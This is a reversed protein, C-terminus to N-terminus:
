FEGLSAGPIDQRRGAAWLGACTLLGLVSLVAGTRLWNDEYAVQIRHRGGPVEIAQFAYNARWIRAPRGDVRAKWAPYYSQAIVV